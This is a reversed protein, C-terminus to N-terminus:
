NEGRNIIRAVTDQLDPLMPLRAVINDIHTQIEDTPDLTLLHELQRIQYAVETGKILTGSTEEWNPKHELVRALEELTATDHIADYLEVAEDLSDFNELPQNAEDAASSGPAVAEPLNDLLEPM